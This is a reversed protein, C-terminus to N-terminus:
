TFKNKSASICRWERLFFSGTGKAETRCPRFDSYEIRVISVDAFQRDVDYLYGADAHHGSGGAINGFDCVTPDVAYIASDPNGDAVPYLCCDAIRVCHRM